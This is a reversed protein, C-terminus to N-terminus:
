ARVEEKSEPTVLIKVAEGRRLLEIADRLGDLTCRHTVLKKVDLLGSELLKVAQPFSANALWTGLVTVERQTIQSQATECMAATNVGFLLIRGGKRVHELATPFLSGTMDMVCDAGIGTQGRVAAGLDERAPDVVVDAGCERAFQRRLPSTESVLVPGAGAAKMLQVMMLGIPGAGLILVSEGPHVRAKQTGNVVCALPEAFMAIEAPLGPAIPYACLESLRVYEAFGGDVEIGLPLINECLNPLNKRCYRCVGCYENPNCVVRDGPKLTRVGAGAQVVEGVLEHGLVTGPIAQYRPPVSLIHVDTGCVSCAEIKVLIDTDKQLAPVPVDRIELRGEGAFVAAKMTKKM